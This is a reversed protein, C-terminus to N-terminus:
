WRMKSQSVGYRFINLLFWRMKITSESFFLEMQAISLLQMRSKQIANEGQRESFSRDEALGKQEQISTLM